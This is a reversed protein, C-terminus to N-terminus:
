MILYNLRYHFSIKLSVVCTRKDALRRYGDPCICEYSGYTNICGYSCGHVFISQDCENKDKECYEGEFNSTCVCKGDFCKGNNQCKFNCSSKLECSHGDAQLEYEPDCGCHYTGD